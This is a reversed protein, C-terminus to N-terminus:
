RLEINWNIAHTTFSGIAAIRNPYLLTFYNRIFGGFSHSLFIVRPIKLHDLLELILKCTDVIGGSYSGRGTSPQGDFGPLTINVWRCINSGFQEELKLWESGDFFGGHVTVICVSNSTFQLSSATPLAELNDSYTCSWNSEPNSYVRLKRNAPAVKQFPLSEPVGFNTNNRSCLDFIM